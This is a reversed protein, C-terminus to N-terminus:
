RPSVLQVFCLSGQQMHRPDLSGISRVSSRVRAIVEAKGPGTVHSELSPLLLAQLILSSVAVGMVTGLSRWLSLTSTMVAQEGHPTVALVGITAAPFMFAQGATLPVIFAVVLWTNIGPWISSLLTGGILMSIGGLIQPSKMRGSWTIFYGTSVAFVTLLVTPAGLRFGSMSASDLKVAQFYLPANFIVTNIGMLVFFNAFVMNGRPSSFLLPLPMVPREARREVWVLVTAAVASVVLAAIVLPHKWPLINGGVNIGLILGSTATTLLFSGAWDFTKLIQLPTQDSSRVLNPGLDKPTNFIALGLILVIPPLQVLFAGRWGIWDCLAGGFAAGAASGLGFFVNIYAQFTGRVRIEVLDNVM